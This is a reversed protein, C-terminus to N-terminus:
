GPPPVRERGLHHHHTLVTPLSFSSSSRRSHGEPPEPFGRGPSGEELCVCVTRRFSAAHAERSYSGFGSSEERCLHWEVEIEKPKEGRLILRPNRSFSCSPLVSISFFVPHSLPEERFHNSRETRPALLGEAGTGPTVLNAQQLASIAVESCPLPIAGRGAQDFPVSLQSLGLM